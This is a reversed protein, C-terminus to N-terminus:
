FDDEDSLDEFQMGVSLVQPATSGSSGLVVRIQLENFRADNGIPLVLRTADPADDSASYSHATDLVLPGRNKVYGLQVTEGPNLATHTAKVALGMKDKYVTGNDFHFLDLYGSSYYSAGKLVVDVGYTGNDAWSVYMKTGFGAIAGIQVGTGSHGTSITFPCNLVAPYTRSISGWEYVARVATSSNSNSVGWYTKGNWNNMADPYVEMWESPKVKPTAQLKDFQNSYGYADQYLIGTSGMIGLLTNRTNQLANCSGEPVNVFFSVAGVAPTSRTYTGDWFFVYGEESEYVNGSLSRWTGIALYENLTGFSRINLGPLLTILAATWTTGDWISLVNGAGVALVTKFGTAPAFGTAATNAIGTQWADTFAPAGSLPGYRGVQSDQVYYLYDQFVCMGQGHSSVVARLLSWSGGSTEKYINGSADYFYKNSDYPAGSVIWKVLGTVTTGSVKQTATQLTFRMPDTHIDINQSFAYSGPVGIKDSAGIGGNFQQQNLIQKAM